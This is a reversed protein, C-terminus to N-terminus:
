PALQVQTLEVTLGGKAAFLGVRGAPMENGPLEYHGLASGDVFLDIRNGKTVVELTRRISVGRVKDSPTWPILEVLEGDRYRVLRYDGASRVAFHFFNREDRLWFVPGFGLSRNGSVLEVACSFRFERREPGEIWTLAEANHTMLSLVEPLIQVSGRDRLYRWEFGAFAGGGTQLPGVSRTPSPIPNAAQNSDAATSNFHKGFFEFVKDLNSCVTAVGTLVMGLIVVIGLRREVFRTFRRVLSLEKQKPAAM